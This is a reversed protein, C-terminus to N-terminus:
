RELICSHGPEVLEAQEAATLSANIQYLTHVEEIPLPLSIGSTILGPIWDQTGRGAHLYRAAELHSIERGGVSVARYEGLTASLIDQKLKEIRNILGRREADLRLAQSELRLASDSELRFTIGNVSAELQRRGIENGSVVSVCISQLEPVIKERLVRLPKSAQSTALVTKGQALLSDVLNAITHTKGTGPPGQM